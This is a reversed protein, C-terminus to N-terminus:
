HCTVAPQSAIRRSPDRYTCRIERLFVSRRSAHQIARATALPIHAAPRCQSPPSGRAWQENPDLGLRRAIRKTKAGALWQRLVETTEIVTVERYAM